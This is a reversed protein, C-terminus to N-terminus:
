ENQEEIEENNEPANLTEMLEVMQKVEAVTTEAYESEDAIAAIYKGHLSIKDLNDVEPSQKAEEYVSAAVSEDAFEYYFTLGTITDGSYFFVMHTKVAGYSSNDDTSTDDDVTIVYKSGDSVFYSEDIVAPMSQKATLIVGTAIAVVAAIGVIISGIILGKKGGEKETM